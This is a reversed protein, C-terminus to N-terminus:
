RALRRRLGRVGADAQPQHIVLGGTTNNMCHRTGKLVEVRELDFLQSNNGALRGPLRRRLLDQGAELALTWPGAALLLRPAELPSVPPHPRASVIVGPSPFLKGDAMAYYATISMGVDEINQERKQATVVVEELV